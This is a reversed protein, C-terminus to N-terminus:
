VTAIPITSRAVRFGTTCSAMWPRSAFPQYGSPVTLTLRYNGQTVAWQGRGPWGLGFAPPGSELRRVVPRRRLEALSGAGAPM